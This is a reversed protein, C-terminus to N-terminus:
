AARVTVNRAYALLVERAGESASPYRAAELARLIEMKEDETVSAGVV